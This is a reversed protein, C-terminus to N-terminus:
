HTIFKVTKGVSWCLGCDACSELKGTQEPCTFCKGKFEESAAYMRDKDEEKNKSLRIVCRGPFSKNIADISSYNRATYGFVCLKKHKLLQGAWFMVYEKSYFDGTVHLRIVIGKKHKYMLFDIEKELGLTLGDSTFKHAFYMRKAYCDNEHLCSKPCTESELLSLSYIKKGRWRKSSIHFGLKSNYNGPKLIQKETTRPILVKMKKVGEVTVLPV